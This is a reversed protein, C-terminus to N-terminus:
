RDIRKSRELIIRLNCCFRLFRSVAFYRYKSDEVVFCFLLSITFECLRLVTSYEISPEVDGIFGNGSCLLYKRCRDEVRSTTNTMSIMTIKGILRTRGALSEIRTGSSNWRCSFEWLSLFPSSLFSSKGTFFVISPLSGLIGVKGEVSRFSHFSSPFRRVFPSLLQFYIRFPLHSAKTQVLARFVKTGDYRTAPMRTRALTLRCRDDYVLWAIGRDRSFLRTVIGIRILFGGQVIRGSIFTAPPHDSIYVGYREM